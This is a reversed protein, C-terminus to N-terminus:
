GFALPWPANVAEGATRGLSSSAVKRAAMSRTTMDRVVISISSASPHRTVILIADQDDGPRRRRGAPAALDYL